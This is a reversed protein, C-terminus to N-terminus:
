PTSREVVLQMATEIPIAVVGHERDVWAYRSLEKQKRARLELGPASAEIPKQELRPAPPPTVPPAQARAKGGMLGLVAGIAAAGIVFAVVIVLSTRAGNIRDDEQPPPPLQETM